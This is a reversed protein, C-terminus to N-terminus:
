MTGNSCMGNRRYRTLNALFRRQLHQEGNCTGHRPTLVNAPKPIDPDRSTLYESASICGSEGMTNTLARKKPAPLRGDNLRPRKGKQRPKTEANNNVDKGRLILPYSSTWPPEIEKCGRQQYIRRLQLIGDVKFRDLEDTRPCDYDLQACNVVTAYDLDNLLLDIVSDIEWCEAETRFYTPIANGCLISRAARVRAKPYSPVPYIKKLKSPTEYIDQFHIVTIRSGLKPDRTVYVKSMKEPFENQKKRLKWEWGEPWYDPRSPPLLLIETGLPTPDHVLDVSYDSTMFPIDLLECDWQLWAIVEPLYSFGLIQRVVYKIYGRNGRNKKVKLAKLLITIAIVQPRSRPIM